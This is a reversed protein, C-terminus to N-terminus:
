KKKTIVKNLTEEKTALVSRTHFIDDDVNAIRQLSTHLLDQALDIERHAAATTASADQRKNESTTQKKMLEDIEDIVTTIDKVSSSEPTHSPQRPTIVTNKPSITM